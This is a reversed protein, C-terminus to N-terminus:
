ETCRKHERYDCLAAIFARENEPTTDTFSFFAIAKSLMKFARREKSAAADAMVDKCIDLLDSRAFRGVSAQVATLDRWFHTNAVPDTPGWKKAFALADM